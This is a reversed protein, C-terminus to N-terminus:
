TAARQGEGRVIERGTVLEARVRVFADGQGVWPQLPLASARALDTPDTLVESPGTVMVSWGTHDLPDASDIELCIVNSAAAATLKTGRDTRFVPDPGLMAYHVPFVAPLAGISLAVRGLRTERLRLYCDHESMTVLRVPNLGPAHPVGIPM